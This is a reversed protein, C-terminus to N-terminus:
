SSFSYTFHLYVHCVKFRCQGNFKTLAAIVQGPLQKSDASNKFFEHDLCETATLRHGPNMSLMRAILDRLKEDIPDEAPFWPGLGEKVENRFGCQISEKIQDIQSDTLEAAPSSQAEPNYYFPPIGFRLYFLIIGASWIDAAIGYHGQLVEPAMFHPTGVLLRQKVLKPIVRSMGFDILQVNGEGDFMINDPKLDLHGVDKDHLVKLASLLQSMIRQIDVESYRADDTSTTKEIYDNLGKGACYNTVIWLYRKDEFIDVLKILYKAGDVKGEDKFDQIERLRGIERELNKLFERRQGIDFHHLKSKSDSRRQRLLFHWVPVYDCTELPLRLNEALNELSSENGINNKAKM